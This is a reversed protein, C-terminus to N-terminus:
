LLFSCCLCSFFLIKACWFFWNVCFCSVVEKSDYVQVLFLRVYCLLSMLGAVLGMAFRDKVCMALERLKIWSGCVLVCVCVCLMCLSILGCDVVLKMVLIVSDFGDCLVCGYIDFVMFWEVSDKLGCLASIPVAL